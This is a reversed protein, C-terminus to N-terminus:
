ADPVRRELAIIERCLKQLAPEVYVEQLATQSGALVLERIGPTKIQVALEKVQDKAM